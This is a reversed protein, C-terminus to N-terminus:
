LVHAPANPGAQDEQTLNLDDDPALLQDMLTPDCDIPSTIAPPKRGHSTSATVAEHYRRLPHTHIRPLRVPRRGKSDRFLEIKMEIVHTQSVDEQTARCDTRGWPGLSEIRTPRGCSMTGCPNRRTQGRGLFASATDDIVKQLHTKTSCTM